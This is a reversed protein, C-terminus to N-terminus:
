FLYEWAAILLMIGHRRQWSRSSAAAALTNRQGEIILKHDIRRVIGISPRDRNKRSTYVALELVPTKAPESTL